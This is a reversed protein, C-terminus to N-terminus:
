SKNFKFEDGVSAIKVKEKFRDKMMMAAKNGTCHIPVLLDFNLESFYDIIKKVKKDSSHKLHMGGLIARIRKGNTLKKVYELINIVGKHSCGLLVVVGKETEFYLTIDDKFNDVLKNNEELIYKENIYKSKAVPVEGTVFMGEDIKTKKEANTFKKIKKFSTNNGIFELKNKSKKFKPSFADKHAIVELEPNLELMESLGGTHDDHGHSLIVSSIQKLNIGLKKANHTLVLGQGTDFLYEEDNYNIYFSLGHEALLGRKKVSNEALITVELNKNM